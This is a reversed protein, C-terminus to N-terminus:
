LGHRRTYGRYDTPSFLQAVDMSIGFRQLAKIANAQWTFENPNHRISVYKYRQGEEESLSAVKLGRNLETSTFKKADYDFIRTEQPLHKFILLSCNHSGEIVHVGGVRLYIMSRDRSNINAYAPLDEKKYNREIFTEANRSIFLRTELILGQKYLGELFSKRAPFMRKLDEEGHTQGYDDLIDLFLLLDVRSLWGRVKQAREEGLIFWWTQYKLHSRSIRPDGAIRMIVQRWPDSIEQPHARDILIKLIEHGMLRDDTWKTLYVTKKCVEELVPDDEGITMTRLTTLFYQYHCLRVFTGGEYGQIGLRKLAESLDLLQSRAFAVINGPGEPSFILHRYKGMRALDDRADLGELQDIEAIIMETLYQFTEGEGLENFSKFYAEIIQLLSLRGMKKETLNLSALLSPTVTIHALFDKECLLLSLARVDLSSTVQQPIDDGRGSRALEMLSDYTKQFQDSGSGACGVIRRMQETNQRILDFDNDSWEPLSFSLQKLKSLKM